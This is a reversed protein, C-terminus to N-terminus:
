FLEMPPTTCNIIKELLGVPKENPHTLKNPPVRNEQFIDQPRKGPFCFNKESHFIISEYRSGFSRKLDGMGHVKKDWILVNKVQLENENMIEIFKQQVDWRSFILVCGTDKLVRKLHPIFDTFPSKDNQIKPFRKAKDTKRMSQFDIGYPPDTLVTDVSHAPVNKLLELCDGQFLNIGEM